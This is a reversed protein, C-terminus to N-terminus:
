GVARPATLRAALDALSTAGVAGAKVLAAVAAPNMDYVLCEHGRKMLRRVMNAGMPGLGIMVLQMHRGLHVETLDVRGPM